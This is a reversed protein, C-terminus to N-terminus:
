FGNSFEKSGRLRRSSPLWVHLTQFLDRQYLNARRLHAFFEPADGVRRRKKDALGWVNYTQSGEAQAEPAFDTEHNEVM